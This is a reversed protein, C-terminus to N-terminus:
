PRRAAALARRIKQAAARAREAYEGNPALRLYEEFEVLANEPQRARLLINGAILHGEAFDPKLQLARGVHPGAKAVHGQEYYVRGLAFHGGVSNPNLKLGALLAQEAEKYKRQQRYVEGLAFLAGTTRADLTLARRLTSEARVWDKRDMYATGLLLQAELYAPYLAVARELHAIGEDVNGASLLATQGAVFEARAAVPVGANIVAPPAQRQTVEAAKDYTLQLLIYDSTNTQLDVQQQTDIYNPKHVKVYYIGPALNTFNFKGLRDTQTEAQIGGSFLELRVNVNDAPAGGPNYRVQGHVTVPISTRQQAWAPACACLALAVPLLLRPMPRFM